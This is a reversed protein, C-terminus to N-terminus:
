NCAVTEEVIKGDAIRHIKLLEGSKMDYIEFSIDEATFALEQEKGQEKAEEEIEKVENLLHNMYYEVQDAPIRYEMLERPLNMKECVIKLRVQMHRKFTKERKEEKETLSRIYKKGDKYSYMYNFAVAYFNRYVDFFIAEKRLDELGKRNEEIDWKALLEEMNRVVDEEYTKITRCIRVNGEATAVKMELYVMEQGRKQRDNLCQTM